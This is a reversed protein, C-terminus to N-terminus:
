HTRRTWVKTSASTAVHDDNRSMYMDPGGEASDHCAEPRSTRSGKCVGKMQGPVCKSFLRHFYCLDRRMYEATTSSVAAEHLIPVYVAGSVRHESRCILVDPPSFTQARMHLTCLSPILGEFARSGVRAVAQQM